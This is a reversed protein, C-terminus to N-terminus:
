NGITKLLNDIRELNKTDGIKEYLARAINLNKKAPMFDPAAQTQASLKRQQSVLTVGLSFYADVFGDDLLIARRFASIAKDYNGLRGYAMGLLEYTDASSRDLKLVQKYCRAAMAFDDLGQYSMALETLVLSNNPAIKRAELLVKIATDYRMQARLAMGMGIRANVHRHNVKITKKYWDVADDYNGLVFYAGAANYAAVDDGPNAKFAAKFSAIAEWVRNDKLQKIGKDFNNAIKTNTSDQSFGSTCALSCALLFCFIRIM